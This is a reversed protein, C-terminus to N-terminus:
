GTHALKAVQMYITGELFEGQLYAAVLDISGRQASQLRALTHCLTCVEPPCSAFSFGLPRYDRNGAELSISRAKVSLRAKRDRRLM